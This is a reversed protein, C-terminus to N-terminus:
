LYFICMRLSMCLCALARADGEEHGLVTCRFCTAGRHSNGENRGMSACQACLLGQPFGWGRNNADSGTEKGLEVEVSCTLDDARTREVTCDVVLLENSSHRPKGTSQQGQPRRRRWAWVFDGVKLYLRLM